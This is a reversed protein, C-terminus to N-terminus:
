KRIIEKEINLISTVAILSWNMAYYDLLLLWYDFLYWYRFDFRYAPDIPTSIRQMM